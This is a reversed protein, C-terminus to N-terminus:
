ESIIKRLLEQNSKVGLKNMVSRKQTSITKESKRLILAISKGSFGRIFLKMVEYENKTINENFGSTYSEQLYENHKLVDPTELKFDQQFVRTIKAKIVQNDDEKYIINAINNKISNLKINNQSDHCIVFIEVRSNCDVVKELNLYFHSDDADIFIVDTYSSMNENFVLEGKFDLDTLSEKIM